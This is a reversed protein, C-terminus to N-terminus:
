VSRNSEYYNRLCTSCCHNLTSRPTIDIFLYMVSGPDGSNSRSWWTCNLTMDLVVVKKPSRVEWCSICFADDLSRQRSTNVTVCLACGYLKVQEWPCQRQSEFERYWKGRLHRSIRELQKIMFRLSSNNDCFHSNYNM